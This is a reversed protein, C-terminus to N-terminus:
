LLLLCSNSVPLAIIRVIIKCSERGLCTREGQSELIALFLMFFCFCFCFLHRSVWDGIIHPLGSKQLRGQALPTCVQIPQTLPTGIDFEIVCREENDGVSCM